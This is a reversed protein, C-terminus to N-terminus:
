RQKMNEIQTQTMKEALAEALQKTCQTENMILDIAKNTQGAEIARHVKISVNCANPFDINASRLLVDLKMNVVKLKAQIEQILSVLPFVVVFIVVIWFISNGDGM